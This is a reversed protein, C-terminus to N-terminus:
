YHLKTWAGALPLGNAVGRVLRNRVWLSLRGEALAAADAPMAHFWVTVFTRGHRVVRRFRLRGTLDRVPRGRRVVFLRLAGRALRMHDSFVLTLKAGQRVVREIVPAPAPLSAPPAPPPIVPVPRVTITFTVTETQTPTFPDRVRVTVPYSGPAQSAPPTWTFHGTRPDIAAGAPAGPELSFQIRHGAAEGTVPVVVVLRNGATVTRDAVPIFLDAASGFHADSAAQGALIAVEVFGAGPVTLHRGPEPEVRVQYTGDPLNNFTFLGHPGTVTRPEGADYLGNRNLDVYVTTGVRGPKAPSFRGDRPGDEFVTGNVQGLDANVFDNGTLDALNNSAGLLPAPFRVTLPTPDTVSRNVVVQVTASGRATVVLDNLGDTDVDGTTLGLPGQTGAALAWASQQLPTFWAGADGTNLAVNVPNAAGSTLWVLDPLLDGNVDRVTVADISTQPSTVGSDYVRFNGLGDQIAYHFDGNADFVGLDLRGDNNLDDAVVTTGAPLASVIPFVDSTSYGMQPGASQLGIVVMDVTDGPYLRGATLTAPGLFGFQDSTVVTDTSQPNGSLDTYLTTVNLTSSVNLNQLYLVALQDTPSGAVFVGAAMGYVAGPGADYSTSLPVTWFNQRLTFGSRPGNNVLVSVNGAQDIVAIDPGSAGILNGTVVQVPTFTTNLDLQAPDGFDGYYYLLIRRNNQDLVAYDLGGDGDFDAASIGIPAPSNGPVPLVNNGSPTELQLDSVFPTIQRWGSRVEQRITHEGAQLAPVAYNGLADTTVTRTTGLIEIGNVQANDIDATFRITITGTDDAAALFTPAVAINQGGAVGLIDYDTLVPNGNIAVDFIRQRPKDWYTEAFHLRLPYIANPALGSIAYTFDKGYRNTQYVPQPAPNAIQSTDIPVTVPLAVQGGIFDQDSVYNGVAGGGADIADGTLVPSVELGNLLVLDLDAVLEITITGFSDAVAPFTRVVARNKGDTSGYQRAAEAFIDFDPLVVQSQVMIDFVRVQAADWKTEAFHLRVQYPSGPQLGAAFYTLSSGQRGTQYVEQPAPGSVAATAIAATTSLTSINFGLFDVTYEDPHYLGAGTGGADIFLGTSPTVEIGNIQANDAGGANTSVFRLTITGSADATAAFTRVLAIGKGLNPDGVAESATKFIDFQRLVYDGNIAVDFARHGPGNWYTEAFHLDVAYGAGPTLGSLTYSFDRDFRNTQYVEQPAPSSVLRTNIADPFPTAVQGGTFQQDTRFDGVAAGGADLAVTPAPDSDGTLDLTWGALPAEPAFVEIGCVLAQDLSATFAIALKGTSDALASVEEVVAADLDGATAAIDFDELVTQGNITVDFLRQNPNDYFNDAFHLRVSYQQNPVLGPLTYSFSTGHRFTQYVYQPAPNVIGNTDIPSSNYFIDGGDFDADASFGGDAGGGANLAVIPTNVAASVTGSATFFPLVGFDQGTVRQFIEDGIAVSHRSADGPTFYNAKLAQAVTYTTSTALNYFTYQGLTNTRTSLEGSDLRGNSNADLYVTWGSLPPEEPSFVGDQNLDTFVTGTISAFEDLLFNINPNPQEFYTIPIASPFGPHFQYGPPKIVAVTYNNFPIGWFAYVGQPDTVTSPDAGPDYVGNGDLDLYVRAGRLPVHHIPDTVTGSIPPAPTFPGVYASAVPKNFQDNIVAYLYSPKPLLGQLDLPLTWGTDYTFPVKEAGPVVHGNYDQNDTDVYLTVTTGVALDNAVIATQVPIQVPSLTLDTPIAGLALTPATYGFSGSFTPAPDLPVDSTIIVQYESASLNAYPNGTQGVAHVSITGDGNAPTVLSLGNDASFDSQDIASDYGAPFVAVTQTGGAPNWTATWTAYTTNSPTPFSSFYQFQEPQPNSAGKKIADVQKNSIFKIHHSDWTYEFGADFHTVLLNLEVWAAVLSHAPDGQHYILAFDMSALDKGGILPVAEPVDVGISALIGLAKGNGGINVALHGHFIGGYLQADMVISYKHDTWDATVTGYGESILGTTANGTTIAAFYVQAEVSLMHRDATVTGIIKCFTTDIGQFKLQGGVTLTISGTVQLDKPTALNDLAAAFGTIFIGTDGIAIGESIGTASYDISIDNLKGNIFEVSAGVSFQGPFWLKCSGGIDFDGNSDSFNISLEDLVFSGLFVDEFELKVGDLQPVGDKISVGSGTPLTVSAGFLEPVDFEGTLEFDDPGQLHIAASDIDILLGAADLNGDFTLDVTTVKGDDIVLGPQDSTGLASDLQGYVPAPLNVTVSGFATFQKTGAYQLTLPDDISIKLSFIQFNSSLTFQAQQLAGDVVILGPETTSGLSALVNDLGNDLTSLTVDGGLGFTQEDSSYSFVLDSPALSLNNVTTTTTVAVNLDTLNVGNEDISVCDDGNVPVTLGSLDQIQLNGRLQAQADTTSGGDPNALLLSNLTFDAGSVKLTAGGSLPMGGDALEAVNFVFPDTTQWLTPPTTQVPTTLYASTVTFTSAGTTLALSGVINVLPKFAETGTPALGLEITGDATWDNGNQVFADSRLELKGLTVPTADLLTRDELAEVAPRRTHTRATVNTRGRLNRFWTRFM